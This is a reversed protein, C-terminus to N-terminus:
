GKIGYLAFHSYQPFTGSQGTVEYPYLEISGIAATNRWLTSYILIDGAGNRDQGSLSRSVKYKNTNGYDLIDVIVGAFNSGSPAVSVGFSNAVYGSSVTSGNGYLYHLSYNTGTTDANFQLGVRANPNATVISRIQLHQFTSPISSFTVSSVGGAGVNVTAISEFDGILPAVGGTIGAVINGIM